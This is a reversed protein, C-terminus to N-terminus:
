TGAKRIVLGHLFIATALTDAADSGLRQVVLSWDGLADWAIANGIKVRQSGPYSAAGAALTTTTNVGTRANTQGAQKGTYLTWRVPGSSAIPNGVVAYVDVSAWPVKKGLYAGLTSTTADNLQHFVHGRTPYTNVNSQVTTSGILESPHVVIETEALARARSALEDLAYRLQTPTATWDAPTTPTYSALDARTLGAGIATSAPDGKVGAQVLRAVLEHGAPTYHVWDGFIPQILAVNGTHAALDISPIDLDACIARLAVVDALACGTSLPPIVLALVSTPSAAQVATILARMRTDINATDDNTGTAILVLDPASKAVADLGRAPFATYTNSAWGSRAGNTVMLNSGNRVHIAEVVGTAGAAVLYLDGLFLGAFINPLTGGAVSLDTFNSATTGTTCDITALLTGAASGSRVQITGAGASWWVRVHTCLLGTQYVYQGATLSAAQGAIGTEVHTGTTGTMTIADGKAPRFTDLQAGGLLHALRTPWPPLTDSTMVEATNAGVAQSDGLVLVHFPDAATAAARADDLAQLTAHRQGPFTGAPDPAMLAPGLEGFAGVLELLGGIAVDIGDQVTAADVEHTDDYSVEAAAAEVDITQTEADWTALGTAAVVGPPGEVPVWDTPAPAELVLVAPDGWQVTADDAVGSLDLHRVLRGVEFRWVIPDDEGTTQELVVTATGAASLALEETGGIVTLDALSAGAPGTMATIRVPQRAMPEGGPRAANLEVNVAM